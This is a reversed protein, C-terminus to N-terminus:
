IIWRVISDLLFALIGLLMAIKSIKRTFVIKKSCGLLLNKACIFMISDVGLVAILLYVFSFEKFIYPVLSSGIILIFLLASVKCAFSQGKLVALTKVNFKSDGEFDEVGKLIERGLTMILAFYAPYIVKYCVNLAAGGYIFTLAALMAITLNGIFGEKKFKFSYAILLAVSFTAIIFALISLFYSFLLGLSFLLVSYLIAAKLSLRGSPIPRYPKNILDIKWDAFDNIVHGGASILFGSIYLIILKPIYSVSLSSMAIFYGLTMSLAIILSNSLRIVEFYAKLSM